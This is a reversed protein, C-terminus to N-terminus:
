QERVCQLQHSTYNPTEEGPTNQELDVIQKYTQDCYETTKTESHAPISDRVPYDFKQTCTYCFTADKQKCSALLGIAILIFATKRM